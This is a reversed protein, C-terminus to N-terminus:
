RRDVQQPRYDPGPAIFSKTNATRGEGDVWYYNGTGTVQERREGTLPDVTPTVGAIVDDMAQFTSRQVEDIHHMQEADAALQAKFDGAARDGYAGQSRLLQTRWNEDIVVSYSMHLAMSMATGARATQAVFSMTAPVTWIASGQTRTEATSAFVYGVKGEARCVFYAEGSAVSTGAPGWYSFRAPNPVPRAAKLEPTKCVSLMMHRGYAYAFEVGPDRALPDLHGATLTQLTQLRRDGASWPGTTTFGYPKNVLTTLSISM